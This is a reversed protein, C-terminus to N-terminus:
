VVRPLRGHASERSRKSTWRLVIGSLLNWTALQGYSKDKSFQQKMELFTHLLKLVGVAVSSTTKKMARKVMRKIMQYWLKFTKNKWSITPAKKMM